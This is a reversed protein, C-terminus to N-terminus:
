QAASAKWDGQDVDSGDGLAKTQYKGKLTTQELEGQITSQLKNGGLDFDYQAEIKTGEIKCLTVNTPVDEGSFTFSVTCKPKGGEDAVSLKFNGSAGSAGTWEGAYSGKIAPGDAFASGLVLAALAFFSGIRMGALIAVRAARLLRAQAATAGALTSRDSGKEIQSAMPARPLRLIFEIGLGTTRRAGPRLAASTRAAM